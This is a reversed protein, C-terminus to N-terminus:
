QPRAQKETKKALAQVLAQAFAAPNTAYGVHGGPFTALDIGLKEALLANARYQPAEHNTDAGVVPLLADKQARLAEFDFDHLPYPVLEREFWYQNNGSTFDKTRPDMLNLFAGSENGAKYVRAFKLMAAPIGANRYTQYIDRQAEALTNKDPLVMIAPPEHCVLARIMSSHRVLLELAVIAGSSSGLVFASEGNSLHNILRRADDVDTSLRNNYDQPLTTSLFSRSFGRRDYLLVTFGTQLVSAVNRWIDADGNAGSILLLLPGSGMTEYYLSAGPVNLYGLGVLGQGPNLRCLALGVGVVLLVCTAFGVMTM